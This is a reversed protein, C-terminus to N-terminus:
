SREFAQLLDAMDRGPDDSRMIGGMVAAGRVGQQHLLAATGGTIGGVALLPVTTEAQMARVGGVGIAPGYGPKSATAFAPGVVAYDIAAPDLLRAEEASHISIGILAAPGMIIRAENGDMGSALHVASVDLERAVVATGHIGLTTGSSRAFVKLGMVLDRLEGESLDKERVSVWRCGAEVACGVVDPLPRAAQRRDTILM